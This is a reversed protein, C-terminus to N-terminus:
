PKEEPAPPMPLWYPAVDVPLTDVGYSWGAPGVRTWFSPQWLGDLYILVWHDPVGPPPEIRADRVRLREENEVCCRARDTLKREAAESRAEARETRKEHHEVWEAVGCNRVM